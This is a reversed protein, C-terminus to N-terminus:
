FLYCHAQLGYNPIETPFLSGCHSDCFQFTELLFYAILAAGIVLGYVYGKSMMGKIKETVRMRPCDIYWYESIFFLGFM